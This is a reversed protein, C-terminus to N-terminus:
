VKKMTNWITKFRKWQMECLKLGKESYKMNNLGKENYKM